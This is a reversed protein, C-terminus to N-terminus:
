TYIAHETQLKLELTAVRAVIRWCVGVGKLSGVRQREM